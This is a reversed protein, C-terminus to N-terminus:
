LGTLRACGHSISSFSLGQILHPSLPTGVCSITRQNIHASCYVCVCVCVCV